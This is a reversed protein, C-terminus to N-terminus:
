LKAKGTKVVSNDFTVELEMTGLDGRELWEPESVLIENVDYTTGQYTIKVYHHLPILILVDALWEPVLVNCRHTKGVTQIRPYVRGQRESVEREFPYSPKSFETPFYAFNKFGTTYKIFANPYEFNEDHYWEIKLFCDIDSVFRFPESIYPRQGGLNFLAEYDGNDFIARGDVVNLGDPNDIRTLGDWTIKDFGTEQSLVLGSSQMANTIDYETSTLLNRIKFTSINEGVNIFKDWQFPPIFGELVPMPFVRDFSYWLSRHQKSALDYFPLLSYNKLSM